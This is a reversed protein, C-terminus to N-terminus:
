MENAQAFLELVDAIETSNMLQNRFSDNNMLRSIKSLLKLHNSVNNEKGLLLFVLKVPKGDLSEFDIPKQLLVFSGVAETIHSTKAHPLAISKGVGTSMVNERDFVEKKVTQIDTIKGSKAALEVMFELLEEKEECKHNLVISKEQLIDLINITEM